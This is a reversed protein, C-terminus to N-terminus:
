TWAAQLFEDVILSSARLFCAAVPMLVLLSLYFVTYGLTLSFGPLVRRNINAM